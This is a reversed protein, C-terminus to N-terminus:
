HEHEHEHEPPVLVGHMTIKAPMGPLGFVRLTQLTTGDLEIVQQSAPDSVYIRGLGSAVGPHFQGHNRPNTSPAILGPRTGIVEATRANLRVFDGNALVLDFYNGDASIEYAVAFSNTPLSVLEMTLNTVNVLFLDGADERNFALGFFHDLSEHGRLAGIRYQPPMSPPNTVMFHTWGNTSHWLLLVGETFGFAAVRSNGAEGHMNNFGTVTYVRNSTQLDWIDVGVPLPNPVPDPYLPNPKSIAFFLNTGIPVGSGHQAGAMISAPRYADGQAALQHENFLDVRGTLDWHLTFWEGVAVAHVPNDGNLPINMRRPPEKYYHWHDGHNEVYIGSDFLEAQDADLAVALCYRSSPSASLIARSGLAFHNTLVTGTELDIVSLAANTADAVFLRALIGPEPGPGYDARLRVFLHEHDPDLHEELWKGSGAIPLGLPHWAETLSHAVEIQYRVNTESLWKLHLHDHGAMRHLHAQPPDGVDFHYVAVESTSIQGNSALVGSARLGIRYKGPATFVWNVHAHGGAQLEIRDQAEIGNRSNMHVLPSGFADVQYMIFHGPGEVSVLALRVTNNSFIGNAIEETGLGLFLLGPRAIAPLVWLPAGPDGLFRYAPASPAATRAAAPVKLWVADPEFEENLAESHVHLAWEGNAYNIGVDAHGDALQRQPSAATGCWAAAALLPLCLLYRKM